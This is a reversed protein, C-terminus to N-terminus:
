CLCLCCFCESKNWTNENTISPDDANIMLCFMYLTWGDHRRRCWSCIVEMQWWSFVTGPISASQNVLWQTLLNWLMWVRLWLCLLWLHIMDLILMEVHIMDLIPMVLRLWFQVLHGSSEKLFRRTTKMTSPRLPRCPVAFAQRLQPFLPCHLQILRWSLGSWSCCKGNGSRRGKMPMGFRANRWFPRTMMPWTLHLFQHHRNLSEMRAFNYSMSWGSAPWIVHLANSHLNCQLLHCSTRPRFSSMHWTVVLTQWSIPVQWLMTALMVISMLWSWGTM